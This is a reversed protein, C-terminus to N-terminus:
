TDYWYDLSGRSDDPSHTIPSLALFGQLNIPRPPAQKNYEVIAETLYPVYHGGYSQSPFCSIITYRALFNSPFRSFLGIIDVWRGDKQM